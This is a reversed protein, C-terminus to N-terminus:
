LRGQAFKYQTLDFFGFPRLSQPHNLGSVIQLTQLGNPISYM